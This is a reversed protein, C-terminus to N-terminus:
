WSELWLRDGFGGRASLKDAATLAVDRMTFGHHAAMASLVEYVDAMEELRDDAPAVLLEAAEEALKAHLETEYENLTLVRTVPERGEARIIEPIRDRVLKGM